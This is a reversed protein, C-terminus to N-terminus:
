SLFALLSLLSLIFSFSVLIPQNSHVLPKGPQESLPDSLSSPLLLPLYSQGAVQSILEKSPQHWGQRCPTCVRGEQLSAM